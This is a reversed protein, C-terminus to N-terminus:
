TGSRHATTAPRWNSSASSSRLRVARSISAGRARNVLTRMGRPSRRSRTGGPIARGHRTCSRRTYPMSNPASNLYRTRTRSTVATRTAAVHLGGRRAVVVAMVAEHLTAGIALPHRFTRLRDDGGVILCVAHAGSRELTASVAAAVDFDTSSGPQWEDLATELAIATLAGLSRLDAREPESLVM